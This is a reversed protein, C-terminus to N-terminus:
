KVIKMTTAITIFKKKTVKFKEVISMTMMWLNILVPKIHLDITWM